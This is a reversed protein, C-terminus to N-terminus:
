PTLPLPSENLKVLWDELDSDSPAAGNTIVLWPRAKRIVGKELFDGFLRLAIREDSTHDTTFPQDHRGLLVSTSQGKMEGISIGSAISDGESANGAAAKMFRASDTYVVVDLMPRSDLLDTQVSVTAELVLVNDDSFIPELAIRVGFENEGQPLWAHLENGRVFQEAIEPLSHGSVPDLRACETIPAGESTGGVIDGNLIRIGRDGGRLDVSWASTGNQWTALGMVADDRDDTKWM